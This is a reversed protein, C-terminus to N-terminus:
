EPDVLNARSVKLLVQKKEVSIHVLEEMSWLMLTMAVIAPTKALSDRRMLKM